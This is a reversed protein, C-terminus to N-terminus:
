FTSGFITTLYVTGSTLAADSKVYFRDGEAFLFVGGMDSRNATADYLVFGGAPIVDHDDIGNVSILVEGDTTNVLKIIRCPFNLPSDILAYTGSISGFPISRLGDFRARVANSYM